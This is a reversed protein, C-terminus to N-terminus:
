RLSEVIGKGQRLIEPRDGTFGIITTPQYAVVGADIILDVERELRDRIEEPDTM